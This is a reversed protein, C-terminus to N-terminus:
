GEEVFTKVVSQDQQLITSVRQELLENRLPLQKLKQEIIQKSVEIFRDCLLLLYNQQEVSLDKLKVESTPFTLKRLTEFVISSGRQIFQKKEAIIRKIFLFNTAFENWIPAQFYESLKSVLSSEITKISDMLKEIGDLDKYYVFIKHENIEKIGEALSRIMSIDNSDALLKYYLGSYYDGALVTLQLNTQELHESEVTVKNTVHEHTDLAIQILMTTLAYNEVEDRSLDLQNLISIILILKDEDIVPTDIYRLLYPQLVKLEIQSKIDTLLQQIHQLEIM